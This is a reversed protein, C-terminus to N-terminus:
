EEDMFGVPPWPPFGAVMKVRLRGTGEQRCMWLTRAKHFTNEYLIADSDVAIIALCPCGAERLVREADLRLQPHLGM